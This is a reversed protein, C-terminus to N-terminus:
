FRCLDNNNAKGTEAKQKRSLRRNPRNAYKVHQGRTDTALTSVDAADDINPDSLFSKAFDRFLRLEIAKVAAEFKSQEWEGNMLLIVGVKTKPDFFMETAAGMEAGSHGILKKGGLKKYYWIIGQNKRKAGPLSTQLKMMEQVTSKSLLQGGDQMFEKLFLALDWASSRMGGNPYDPFTYHCYKKLKNKKWESPMALKSQDLPELHWNTTSEDMGLPEFVNTHSYDAFDTNTLVEVMYGALAAGINSYEYKTGPKNRRYNKSRYFKGQPHLYNWLFSKLSTPSDKGRTYVAKYSLSNYHGDSISSTHTLLMRFTIKKKSHKPNKVLFRNSVVNKLYDNVDDDLDFLGQEYLQMLTVGMVTKSISALLYSTDKVSAAVPPETFSDANGYANSWVIDEGKIVVASLSPMHSKKMQETIFNDLGDNASQITSQNQNQTQIQIQSKSSNTFTFTYTHFLILFLLFIPSTFM